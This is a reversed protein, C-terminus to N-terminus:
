LYGRRGRMLLVIFFPVGLVAMTIGVPIETPPILVRGFLDALTTILAGLILSLPLSRSVTSGAIRRSIHPTVLGVFGILGSISVASAAAISALVVASIRLARVHAGLLAAADAGLMLLDIKPSLVIAVVAAVVVFASPAILMQYGVSSFGGISFSNYSVLADVGLLSLFSIAANFLANVAIGALIISSNGRGARKALSIVIATTFFAGLFAFLQMILGGAVNTATPLLSLFIMVGLGAGSNIGIISPAALPNETVAQLLEGSLSLGAGAIIAAVIRPLRIHFIITTAIEHGERCFLGGFIEGVSMRAAGLSLSVAVTMALLFLTAGYVAVLPTGCIKNVNPKNM